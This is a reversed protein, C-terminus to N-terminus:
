VPKLMSAKPLSVKLFSAAFDGVGARVYLRCYKGDGAGAGLAVPRYSDRALMGGGEKEGPARFPTLFWYQPDSSSQSRFVFKTGSVKESIAIGGTSEAPVRRM